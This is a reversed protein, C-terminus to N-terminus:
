WRISDGPLDLFPALKAEGVGVGTVATPNLLDGDTWLSSAFAFTQQAGDVKMALAWGGACQAQSPTGAPALWYVGDPLGCVSVAGCSAAPFAATGAANGADDFCPTCTSSAVTEYLVLLLATRWAPPAVAPPRPQTSVPSLPLYMTPSVPM